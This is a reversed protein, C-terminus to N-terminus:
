LRPRIPSRRKPRSKFIFHYNKFFRFQRDTMKALDVFSRKLQAPETGAWADIIDVEHGETRLRRVHSILIETAELDEPEEPNWDVPETFGLEPDSTHRFSCSCGSASGIYWKHEYLLAAAIPDDPASREFYVFKSSRSTLDEPSTTSLYVSYCM